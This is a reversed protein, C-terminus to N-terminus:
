SRGVNENQRTLSSRSIKMGRQVDQPVSTGPFPRNQEDQPTGVPLAERLLASLSAVISKAVEAVGNGGFGAEEEDV